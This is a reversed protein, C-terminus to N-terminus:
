CTGVSCLDGAADGVEAEPVWDGMPPSILQVAIGNPSVIYLNVDDSDSREAESTFHYKYGGNEARSIFEKVSISTGSVAYHFDLWTDFGCYADILNEDHAANLIDEFHKAKFDGRTASEDKYSLHVQIMSFSADANPAQVYARTVAGDDGLFEDVQTMGLVETQFIHSAAMDSVFHSVAAAYLYDDEDDPFVDAPGEGEKFAYRPAPAAQFGAAHKRVLEEDFVDSFYELVGASRGIQFIVSM